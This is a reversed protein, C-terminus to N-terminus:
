TNLEALLGFGLAPAGRAQSAFTHLNNAEALVNHKFRIASFADLASERLALIEPINPLVPTAM